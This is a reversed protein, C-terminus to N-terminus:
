QPRTEHASMTMLAHALEHPNTLAIGFRATGAHVVLAHPEAPEGTSLGIATPRIYPLGALSTGQGVPSSQGSLQSAETAAALLSAVVAGVDAAPMGVGSEPKGDKM